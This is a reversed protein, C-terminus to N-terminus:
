PAGVPINKLEHDREPSRRRLVVEVEPVSRGSLSQDTQPVTVEGPRSPSSVVGRKAAPVWM